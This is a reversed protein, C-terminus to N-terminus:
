KKHSLGFHPIHTSLEESNEPLLVAFNFTVDQANLQEVMASRLFNPNDKNPKSAMPNHKKPIVLYQVNEDGLKFPTTSWYTLNLPSAGKELGNLQDFTNM